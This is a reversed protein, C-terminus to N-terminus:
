LVEMGSPSCTHVLLLLCCFCCCTAASVGAGGCTECRAGSTRRATGVATAVLVHVDNSDERRAVDEERTGVAPLRGPEFQCSAETAVLAARELRDFNNSSRYLVFM